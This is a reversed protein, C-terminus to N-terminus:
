RKTLEIGSKSLVLACQGLKHWNYITQYQALFALVVLFDKWVYCHGFFCRWTASLPKQPTKRLNQPNTQLSLHKRCQSETILFSRSIESIAEEQHQQQHHRQHHHHHHHHHGASPEDRKTDVWQHFYQKKGWGGALWGGLKKYCCRSPPFVVPFVSPFVRTFVLHFIFCHISSIDCIVFCFVCLHNKKAYEQTELSYRENACFSM